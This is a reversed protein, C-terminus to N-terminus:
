REEGRWKKRGEQIEGVAKKKERGGERGGEREKRGFYKYRHLKTDGYFLIQFNFIDPNASGIISFAHELRRKQKTTKKPKGM